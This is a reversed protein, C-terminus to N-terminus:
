PKPHWDNVARLMEDAAELKAEAALIARVIGKHTKRLRDLDRSFKERLERLSEVLPDPPATNPLSM